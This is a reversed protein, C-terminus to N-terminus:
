LGSAIIKNLNEQQQPLLGKAIENMQQPFNKLLFKLINVMDM